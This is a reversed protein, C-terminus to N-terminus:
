GPCLDVKPIIERVETAGKSIPKGLDYLNHDGPLKRQGISGELYQKYGNRNLSCMISQSLASSMRTHRLGLIGFRYYLYGSEEDSWVVIDDSRLSELLPREERTVQNDIARSISTIYPGITIISVAFVLGCIINAAPGRKKKCVLSDILWTLSHALYFFAVSSVYYSAIVTKLSILLASCILIIIALKWYDSAYRFGISSSRMECIALVVIALVLLLSDPGSRLFLTELNGYISWISNAATRDYSPYNSFLINGSIIFNTTLLPMLGIIFGSAVPLLRRLLLRREHWFNKLRGMITCRERELAESNSDRPCFLLSVVIPLGLIINSTRFWLSLGLLMGLSAVKSQEKIRVSAAADPTSLKDFWSAKVSVLGCILSLVLTPFMSFSHSLYERCLWLCIFWSLLILAKLGFSSERADVILYSFVLTSGVLCGILLARVELQSPFFSMLYSTGLPYQSVNRSLNSNYRFSNPALGTEWKKPSEKSDRAVQIAIKELKSPKPSATLKNLFKDDRIQKSLISYGAADTGSKKPEHVLGASYISKFVFVACFFLVFGYLIINLLKKLQM